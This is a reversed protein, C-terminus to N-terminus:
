YCPYEPCIRHTEILGKMILNLVPSGHLTQTAGGGAPTVQHLFIHGSKLYHYDQNSVGRLMSVLSVDRYAHWKANEM